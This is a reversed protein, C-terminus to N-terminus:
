VGYDEVVAWENRTKEKVWRNFGESDADDLGQLGDGGRRIWLYRRGIGLV